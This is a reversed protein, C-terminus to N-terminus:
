FTMTRGLSSRCVSSNTRSSTSTNLTLKEENSKEEVMGRDYDNEEGKEEKELKSAGKYIAIEDVKFIVCQM